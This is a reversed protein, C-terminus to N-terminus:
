QIHMGITQRFGTLNRPPSNNLFCYLLSQRRRKFYLYLFVFEFHNIKKTNYPNIRKIRGLILNGIFNHKIDLVGFYQVQPGHAFGWTTVMKHNTNCPITRM